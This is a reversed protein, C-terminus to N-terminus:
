PNGYMSWLAVFGSAKYTEANQPDRAAFEMTTSALALFLADAFAAPLHVFAASTSLGTAIGPEPFEALCQERTAQTVVGSATLQNLAQSAQPNALGWDIYGDWLAQARYRLPADAVYKRAVAVSTKQKIHLYLENLLDDKTPFYRFLTGEAVGAAKAIRATPAGLGHAAVAETAAELLAVRKDESRPRAM